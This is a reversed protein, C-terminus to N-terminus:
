GVVHPAVTAIGVRMASAGPHPEGPLWRRWLEEGSFDECTSFGTRRVRDLVKDPDFSFAGFTFAVRTKPGGVRAMLALSRDIATDDIYGIVGEWVFMAGAGLRFGHAGLAAELAVDFDAASFDCPVYAVREPLIVGGAALLARKRELQEVFDVEFVKVHHAAVEPMRLGRTDFGAGLLVLQDLGAVLGDRVADDIFRTRLRIGEHFFPLDLYRQTAEAAHAGGAAFLQAYPDVFWREAEPKLAEKARVAAISFATDAVTVM